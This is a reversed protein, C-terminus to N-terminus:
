RIGRLFNFITKKDVLFIREVKQHCYDNVVENVLLCSYRQTIRRHVLVDRKKKDCTEKINYPIQHVSYPKYQYEAKTYMRTSVSDVHMEFNSKTSIAKMLCDILWHTAHHRMPINEICLQIKM